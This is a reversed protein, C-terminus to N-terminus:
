CENKRVILQHTTKNKAMVWQPKGSTAAYECACILAINGIAAGASGFLNDLNYGESQGPSYNISEAQQLLRTLAANDVQVRWLTFPEGISLAGWRLMDETTHVDETAVVPRHIVSEPKVDCRALWEPSALLIASVSEAQYDRPQLFLNIEISLIVEAERQDLWPDLWMLGDSEAGVEFGNVTCAGPFAERCIQAISEDNLAGDHRIRVSFGDDPLARLDPELMQCLKTMFGTLRTSYDEQSFDNASPKLQATTFTLQLPSFYHSQLQSGNDILASALKNCAIPTIYAKGLLGAFRQGINVQRDHQEQYLHNWYTIRDRANEYARLRFAYCAFGTALPIALTSFWFWVSHTSTGAPWFYLSLIIGLVTILFVVILWRFIDPPVPYRIKEPIGRLEVPM